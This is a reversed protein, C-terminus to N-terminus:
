VGLIAHGGRSAGILFDVLTVDVMFGQFYLSQNLLAPQNPIALSYAATGGTVPFVAQLLDPSVLLDCAPLNLFALNLPTPASLGIAVLLANTNLLLPAFTLTLTQGLRPPAAATINAAASTCGTGFQEFLGGVGATYEHTQNSFVAGVGGFTVFKRRAPVADYGAYMETANASGPTATSIQLWNDVLFEFTQTLIQVGDFGGYIVMRQRVSDYVSATRYRPSPTTAPTLQTWDTGDYVWTDGLITDTDRNYGGFLLTRGAGVDFVMAMEERAPPATTTTVQQWTNVMGTLNLEWTDGLTQLATRGGFVVVRNRLSDFSMGYLYRASPAGTTPLAAWSTGNWTYTDNAFGSITPSRGGFTLIRNPTSVTDRVMQHGWRALAGGPPALLTWQGNYAWTESLIVSPTPSVGGYMILRNGVGDFAMAGARRVSPSTTPTILAWAQAPAAATLALLVFLTHSPRM